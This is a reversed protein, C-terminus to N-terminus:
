FGYYLILNWSTDLTADPGSDPMVKWDDYEILVSLHDDLTATIGPLIERETANAGDYNAQSVNVRASLRSMVQYKTGVLFYTADDYGPRSLPHTVDNKEGRAVLVEGWASWPGAAVTADVAGHTLDFDEGSGSRKIRGAFGSAGITLTASQGLKFTPALRATVAGNLAADPDSEVDRGSAAGAVHDNNPFAQVSYEWSTGSTAHTGVFEAGYEPNLKLGNFYQVNGFFSDDWFLGVKRYVKGIRADGWSTSRYVYAEQLWYNSLFYDRLKSDRARAQAHFGYRGETSKADVNMMFAYVEFYDSADSMTPVYYFLYAGGSMSMSPGPSEQARASGAWMPGVLWILALGWFWRFHM